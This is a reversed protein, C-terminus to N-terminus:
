HCSGTGSDTFSQGEIHDYTWSYSGASLDLRLVGSTCTEVKEVGPAQDYYIESGGPAGGTGVVFQHVSGGELQAELLTSGTYGDCVRQLYQTHPDAKEEESVM